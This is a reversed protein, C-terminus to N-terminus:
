EHDSCDPSIKSRQSEESIERLSKLQQPEDSFCETNLSNRKRTIWAIGIALVVLIPWATMYTNWLQEASPGRHSGHGSGMAVGFSAMSLLIFGAFAAIFTILLRLWRHRIFWYCALSVVFMPISIVIVETIGPM